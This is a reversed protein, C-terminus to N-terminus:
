LSLGNTLPTSGSFQDMWIIKERLSTEQGLLLSNLEAGEFTCWKWRPHNALESNM